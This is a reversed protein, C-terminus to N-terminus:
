HERNIKKNLPDKRFYEFHHNGREHFLGDEWLFLSLHERKERARKVIEM